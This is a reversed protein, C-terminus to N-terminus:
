PNSPAPSTGGAQQQQAHRAAVGQGYDNGMKVDAASPPSAVPAETKSACGPLVISTVLTTCLAATLRTFMQHM